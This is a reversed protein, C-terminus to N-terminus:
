ALAEARFRDLAEAKSFTDFVTRIERQDQESVTLKANRYQRSINFVTMFVARDIGIARCALALLKARESYIAQRVLWVEIGLQAALGHEFLDMQGQHLVRILFSPRIQGAANLKAVLKAAATESTGARGNRLSTTTEELARALPVAVHPYRRTLATKLAASVWPYMRTALVAPLDARAVLQEQLKNSGRARDVLHAFTEGGIRATPNRLLALIVVESEARALAATVFEGIAPRGAVLIQHDTSGTTVIHLLDQDDLVPSRALIPRAVEIRDDALLFILEHPADPDEALREALSIRISMEVDKSLRRLIDAAMARERPSFSANRHEFLKTVSLFIDDLRGRYDHVAMRALRSLEVSQQPQPAPMSM